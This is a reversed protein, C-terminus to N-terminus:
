KDDEYALVRRYYLYLYTAIYVFTFCTMILLLIPVFPVGELWSWLGKLWLDITILPLMIVVWVVALVLLLFILRIIFRIRRGAMLDSATKLATMPYLGPATVAVLAILTSSLLYASLIILAAAFIFYVLAYFPTSLFDTQVAASYTFIVLLLPITQIFAVFFIVFTSILPSCANYLGDRLKVKKGALIFRLLYITVLWIILFIIVAFITQSEGLGGTLGGTTVTSILLLGAKAFNGIEGGAIQANTDELTQQFQVYTQESMLGVLVVNFIVAFIILPLFLKWNKFIIGFTDAAHHLLGPVSLKRVYDERYSRKFSQHLRVRARKRQWMKERSKQYAEKFAAKFNKPEEPKLSKNSKIKKPKAATKKTSKKSSSSPM